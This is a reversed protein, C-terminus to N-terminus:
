KIIDELRVVCLTDCYIASPDSVELWILYNKSAYVSGEKGTPQTLDDRQVLEEGSRTFTYTEKINGSDDYSNAISYTVLYSNVTGSVPYMPSPVSGIDTEEGTEINYLKVICDPQEDDPVNPDILDYQGDYCLVLGDDSVDLISYEFPIREIDVAPTDETEAPLTTDETEVSLTTDEAEAPEEISLATDQANDDPETTAQAKGCATFISALLMAALLIATIRKTM